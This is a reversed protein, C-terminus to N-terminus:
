TWSKTVGCVTAWWAERDMPNGLCSYQFPYDNGEEPSKGLGPISGTDGANAPLNNVMSSGLYGLEHYQTSLITLSISAFLVITTELPGPSSFISLQQEFPLFNTIGSSYTRSIHQLIYTYLNGERGKEMGLFSFNHLDALDLLLFREVDLVFLNQAMFLLFIRLCCDNTWWQQHM